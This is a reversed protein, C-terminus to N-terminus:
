PQEKPPAPNTLATKHREREKCTPTDGPRECYDCLGAARLRRRRKLEGELRKEDYEDLDMPYSM